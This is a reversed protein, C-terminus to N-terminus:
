GKAAKERAMKKIVCYIGGEKLGPIFCKNCSLCKAPTRDGGLWRNPLDPEWIFPRAMSIYDMGDDRVAKEAIEYSRFGGVVM